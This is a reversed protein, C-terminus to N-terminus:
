DQLAFYALLSVVGCNGVNNYVTQKYVDRKLQSCM